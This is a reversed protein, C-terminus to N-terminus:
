PAAQPEVTVNDLYFVGTDDKTSVFGLWDFRKFPPPYTLDTRTITKGDPLRVSLAFSGDAQDGLKATLELHVWQGPPLPLLVQGGASLNGDPTVQLMPGNAFEGKAVKYDRWECTFQAGTEWRVDVTLRASGTSILPRYFLHPNFFAKQGPADEVKLSHKGAAATEETVRAKGAKGDEQTVALASKGGVAVGEFDDLIPEPPLEPPTRPAPPFARLALELPPGTRTLRGAQSYDFPKFGIKAAPSGPKLTFDGHQPDVFLPDALLSEADQGRARWEDWTWNALRFAAETPNWYLNRNFAYRGKDWAHGAALLPGEDWVILNQEVTYTLHEEGRCRGIHGGMGYAFINNRALNDRGYNCHFAHTTVRYVLNDEVRMESSGEDLYIGCAWPVGYQDHIVNGRIVTGPQAGLTYIGAQDGLVEQPMWSIRNFAIRNDRAPGPEYGWTWGVSFGSYYFDFLENHELINSHSSGVWVCVAAPHLRGGHAFLCDRVTNHSAVLADDKPTASEGIKVGGGGLDTFECTEIRNRKCARGLELAYGGLHTFRCRLFACDQAGTATVAAPMAHEAQADCQGQPPTVWNAYALTLDRFEVHSVSLGADLDGKIEVLSALRPAVVLATAPDEGPMPLYRLTGSPRDLYWQGAETLAEAVNEVRYRTGRELSRFTPAGLTVDRGAVSRLPLRSTSWCHFAHVEIDGPNAWDARLEGAGARFRDYRQAPLGPSSPLQERVFYYGAAPLVPRYRRADNVFLQLFSWQGAAVEPLSAEWRGAAAKWASIRRGGSLVATEGPYAAFVVPAGKEGSCAPTILLPESLEYVGVRFSVLAGAALKGAARLRVIEDRARTPTAFPGDSGAGNAEALAGSWTDNGAPAVYLQVRGPPAPADQALAAALMAQTVLSQIVVAIRRRTRM